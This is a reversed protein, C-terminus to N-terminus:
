NYLTLVIKGVASRDKLSALAEAARELPYKASIAPKIKGAQAWRLLRRFNERAQDPFKTLFSTWNVGVISGAKLLPLNMPITPITGAAFGVILLRGGWALSRLALETLEGGVPDLVVHVGHGETIEKLRDKLNSESYDVLEDAGYKRALDLKGRSGAAAIVRAGLAKGVQVAALGVGGGAGLVVLTERRKLGGRQVLAHCATGYVTPFVAAAEFPMSKPIRFVRLAPIAIREAWAGWPASLMVREGSRFGRASKGLAEVTGAAEFGPTFPLPPKVQYNGAVMLLDPFNVGAASVRVLVEDSAPKPDALKEISLREPGGFQACRVAKM